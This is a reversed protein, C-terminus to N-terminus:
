LYCKFINLMVEEPHTLFYINIKKLTYKESFLRNNM